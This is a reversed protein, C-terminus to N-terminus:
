FNVVFLDDLDGGQGTEVSVLLRTGDPTWAYDAGTWIHGVLERALGGNSSVVYLNGETGFAILPVKSSARSGGVPAALLAATLAFAVAKIM